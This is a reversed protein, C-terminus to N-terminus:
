QSDEWEQRLNQMARAWLKRVADPSRNMQQSIEEFSRQEEYRLKIVRRHDDSLRALARQLQAAREQEMAISSPSPGVDAMFDCPLGSQSGLKFEVERSLDRKSTERFRRSFTGVNNLLMQRLWRLLEAESAGGFQRFDRQAELFTEQVLDSASGKAQLDSGLEGRAISLLYLRCKELAQGLAENSGNRAEEIWRHIDGPGQAM